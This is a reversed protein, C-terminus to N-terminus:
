EGILIDPQFTVKFPEIGALSTIQKLIEEDPTEAPYFDHVPKQFVLTLNGDVWRGTRDIPIITAVKERADSPKLSIFILGVDKGAFIVRTKTTAAM